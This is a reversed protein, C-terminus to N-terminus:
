RVNWDSREAIHIFDQQLQVHSQPDTDKPRLLYLLVFAAAAPILQFPFEHIHSNLLWLEHTAAKPDM